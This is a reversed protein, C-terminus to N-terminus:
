IYKEILSCKSSYLFIVTCKRSLWEGGTLELTPTSDIKSCLFRAIGGKAFCRVVNLFVFFHCVSLLLCISFSSPWLFPAFIIIIIFFYVSFIKFFFSFFALALGTTTCGHNETLLPCSLWFASIRDLFFISLNSLSALFFPHRKTWGSEQARLTYVWRWMQSQFSSSVPCEYTANVWNLEFLM